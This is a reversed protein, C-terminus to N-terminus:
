LNRHYLIGIKLHEQYAITALLPIKERQPRLPRQNL